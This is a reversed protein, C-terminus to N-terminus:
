QVKVLALEKNELRHVYRYLILVPVKEYSLRDKVGVSDLPVVLALDGLCKKLLISQLNSSHSSVRSYLRLMAM